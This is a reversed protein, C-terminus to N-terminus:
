GSEVQVDLVAWVVGDLEAYSVDGYPSCDYVRGYFVSFGQLSYAVSTASWVSGDVGFWGSDDRRSRGDFWECPEIGIGGAYLEDGVAALELSECDSGTVGVAHPQYEVWVTGNIANGLEIVADAWIRGTPGATGRICSVCAPERVACFQM